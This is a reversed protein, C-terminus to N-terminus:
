VDGGFVSGTQFWVKQGEVFRAVTLKRKFYAQCYDPTGPIQFQVSFETAARVKNMKKPTLKKPLRFVSKKKFTKTAKGLFLDGKRGHLTYSTTVQARSYAVYRIVLRVKNHRTYIFVRARAKRLKCEPPPIKAAAVEQVPPSTITVKETADACGTQAAENNADGSYTAVWYYDGAATPTALPSAYDGNGNVSSNAVEAAPTGACNPNGYLRFTIAGTPGAGGSLHATDFVQGGLVGGPGATTTLTPNAKNVVSIELADACATVKEENNADGSYKAVWRYSGAQTATFNPSDYSNNAPTKNVTVNQGTAGNLPTTCTTDGPGYLKFNITATATPEILGSITATDHIASGVTVPGSAATTLTPTAKEVETTENEDSCKGSVAENNDDGNFHAIWHYEGAGSSTTDFDESTYDGDEEVSPPTANLTELVQGSCDEGKYIDFTVEGDGTPSVLGSLTAVDKIDEGVIASATANTELEPTAKEVIVQEAEDSCGTQAPSNNDDGSYSAFWYYTGAQKVLESSPVETTYEGNGNVEVTDQAIPTGDCNANDYFSFSISRTGSPNVLGTIEATDNPVPDGVTIEGDSVTTSIEPEAKTITVEEKPDNCQTPGADTVSVSTSKFSAVWWYSGASEVTFGPSDYSGDGKTVAKTKTTILHGPSGSEDCEDNDYLKFTLEGTYTNNGIGSLTATDHIESGVVHVNGEVKGNTSDTKLLPTGPPSVVSTEGAEKCTTSIDTAQPDATSHYTAVWYYTGATPPTFPASTVEASSDLDVPTPGSTFDATGICTTPDKYASFTVTGDTAGTGNTEADTVHATDVISEGLKVSPTASTTIKAFHVCSGGNVDFDNEEISNDGNALVDLQSTTSPVQFKADDDDGGGHVDYFNVCVSTPVFNRGRYVHSYGLHVNGDSALSSKEYGWSGWPFGTFADVHSLPERGCGGRWTTPHPQGAAQPAPDVFTQGAEFPPDTVGPLGEPINGRDVPHVMGDISNPDAWSGDKSKVGVDASVTKGTMTYGTETPDNWIMSLGTAARDFNCDSKHSLWNWQGRVYVTVTGDPNQVLDGKTTGIIPNGADALASPAGLALLGVALLVSIGFRRARRRTPLRDACLSPIPM